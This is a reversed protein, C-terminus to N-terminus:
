KIVSLCISKMSDSSIKECLSPDNKKLAQNFIENDNNSPNLINLCTQRLSSDQIMNCKATNNESIAKIYFCEDSKCGQELEKYIEYRKRCEESKKINDCLSPDNESIAKQFIIMLECDDVNLKLEKCKELDGQTIIKTFENYNKGIDTSREFPTYTRFNAYLLLAIVVIVAIAFIVKM